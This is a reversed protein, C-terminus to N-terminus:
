EVDSNKMDMIFLHEISGFVYRIIYNQMINKYNILFEIIINVFRANEMKLGKKKFIHVGNTFFGYKKVGGKNLHFVFGFEYVLAQRSLGALSKNSLTLWVMSYQCVVLPYNHMHM